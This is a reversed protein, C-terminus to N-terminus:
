VSLSSNQSIFDVLNNPKSFELNHPGESKTGDLTAHTTEFSEEEMVWDELNSLGECESNSTSMSEESSDSDDVYPWLLEDVFM